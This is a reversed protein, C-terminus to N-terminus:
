MSFSFFIVCSSAVVVDSSKTKWQQKRFSRRIFRYSHTHMYTHTHKKQKQKKLNQFTWYINIYLIMYIHSHLWHLSSAISSVQEERQKKMTHIYMQWKRINKQAVIRHRTHRPRLSLILSCLKMRLVEMAMVLVDTTNLACVKCSLLSM